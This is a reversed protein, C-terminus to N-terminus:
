SSPFKQHLCHKSSRTLDNTTRQTVLLKAVLFICIYEFYAYIHMIDYLICNGSIHVFICIDASIHVEEVYKPFKLMKEIKIYFICFLM